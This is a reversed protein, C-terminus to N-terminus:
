MAPMVSSHHHIIMWRDGQWEYVFSFRAKATSGDKFTFKYIGSNIIAQSFYVPHSEMLSVKPDGELFNVFYGEIKEHTDHVMGSMTPLLIAHKAYLSTIKKADRTHLANSWAEFQNLHERKEKNTM